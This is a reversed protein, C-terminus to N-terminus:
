RTDRCSTNIIKDLFEMDMHDARLLQERHLWQLLLAAVRGMEWQGDIAAPGTVSDDPDVYRARGGETLGLVDIIASGFDAVTNITVWPSTAPTSM